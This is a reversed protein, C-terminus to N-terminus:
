IADPVAFPVLLIPEPTYAEPPMITLEARTGGPGGKLFTVETILWDLTKTIRAKPILVPVITNPTWLKGAVDRWSDVTVKVAAGRGFRRAAEWAARRQGIEQGQAGAESIIFHKRNRKVNPDKAIGLLNGGDGTEKVPLMSNIFVQIESYREDQAFMVMHRQINQGGTVGSAARVKGVEAIVLHGDFGEYVIKAAYRTIREVIDYGTEGLMLNLQPIAEGDGDPTDVTIGYPKALDRAVQGPTANTFQLSPWEASCDVLDQCMGRGQVRVGNADPEAEYFLRDIYGTVIPDNGALLQCALGPQFDLKAEGPFQETASISFDNPCRDLGATVRVDLWGSFSRGGVKLVLDDRTM